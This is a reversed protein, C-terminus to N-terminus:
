GGTWIGWALETNTKDHDRRIGPMRAATLCFIWKDGQGSEGPWSEAEDLKCFLAHLDHGRMRVTDALIRLLKIYLEIAFSFTVIPPAGLSNIRNQGALAANAAGIANVYFNADINKADFNLSTLIGAYYFAEAAEYLRQPDSPVTNSLEVKAKKM